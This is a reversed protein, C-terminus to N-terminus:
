TWPAWWPDFRHRKVRIRPRDPGAFLSRGVRELQELLANRDAYWVTLEGGTRRGDTRWGWGTM